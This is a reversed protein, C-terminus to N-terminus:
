AKTPLASMAIPLADVSRGWNAFDLSFNARAPGYARVAHGYLRHSLLTHKLPM